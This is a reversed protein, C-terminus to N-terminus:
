LELYRADSSIVDTFFEGVVFKISAFQKETITITFVKGESPKNKIVSMMTLDVNSQNICMKVYVSEQMMLFGTKKLFKVFNRYVRRQAAKIVPLDFFLLIRMFRYNSEMPLLISSNSLFPITLPM